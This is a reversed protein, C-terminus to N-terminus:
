VQCQACVDRAARPSAANELNERDAAHLALSAMAWALVALIWRKGAEKALQKAALEQGLVGGVSAPSRAKIGGMPEAAMPRLGLIALFVGIASTSLKM